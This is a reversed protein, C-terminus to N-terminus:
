KKKNLNKSLFYFGVIAAVGLLVNTPNLGAAQPQSGGGINVTFDQAAPPKVFNSQQGDNSEGHAGTSIGAALANQKCSPCNTVKRKTCAVDSCRFSCGKESGKGSSYFALNTRLDLNDNWFKGWFPMNTSIARAMQCITAAGIMGDRNKCYAMKKRVNFREADQQSMLSQFDDNGPCDQYDHQFRYVYEALKRDAPGSFIGSKRVGWPAPGQRGQASRSNFRLAGPIGTPNEGFYTYGLGDLVDYRSEAPLMRGGRQLLM